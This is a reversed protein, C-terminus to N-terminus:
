LQERGETSQESQVRLLYHIQDEFLGDIRRIAWIICGTFLLSLTDTTIFGLSEGLEFGLLAAVGARGFLMLAQVLLGFFITRLADQRITEKGCFKIYLLALMSVANGVGYIVFHQWTGGSLWAYLLGGAVAHIAAWPGWRMMVLAVMIAVPSVVYLMYMKGDFWVSVALHIVFQCVAMVVALIILDISRYQSLSIQQKM